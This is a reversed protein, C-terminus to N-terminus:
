RHVGPAYKELAALFRERLSTDAAMRTRWLEELAKQQAPRAHLAHFARETEAPDRARRLAAVLWAYQEVTIEPLPPPPPPAGPAAAGPAATRKFPLAAIVKAIDLDLTTGSVAPAAVNVAPMREAPPAPPPQPAATAPAGPQVPVPPPIKEGGVFPLAALERPLEFVPTTGTSVARPGAEAGAAAAPDAPRAVVKPGGRFPTAPGAPRGEGVLTVSHRPASPTGPPPAAPPPLGQPPAALPAMLPTATSLPAMRSPAAMYSPIVVVGPTAHEEGTAAAPAERRERPEAIVAAGARAEAGAVDGEFARCYREALEKRGIAVEAALQALWHRQVAIWERPSVGAERLVRDRDAVREIEGRLEAFRELSLM